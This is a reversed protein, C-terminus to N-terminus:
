THWVFSSNSESAIVKFDVNKDLTLDSALSKHNSM